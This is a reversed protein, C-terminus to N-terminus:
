SVGDEDPITPVITEPTLLELNSFASNLRTNEENLFDYTFDDHSLCYIQNGSSKYIFLGKVDSGTIGVFLENNDPTGSSLQYRYSKGSVLQVTFTRLKNLYRKM